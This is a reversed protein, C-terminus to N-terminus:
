KPTPPSNQRSPSVASPTGIGAVVRAGVLLWLQAVGALAAGYIPDAIALPYIFCSTGIAMLPVGM